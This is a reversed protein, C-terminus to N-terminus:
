ILICIFIYKWRGFYNLDSNCDFTAIERKKQHNTKTPLKKKREKQKKQQQPKKNWSFFFIINRWEPFLNNTKPAPLNAAGEVERAMGEEVEVKTALLSFEVLTLLGM